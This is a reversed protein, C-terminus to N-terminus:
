GGWLFIYEIRFYILLRINTRFFLEETTIKRCISNHTHQNEDQIDNMQFSTAPLKATSNHPMIQTNQGTTCTLFTQLCAVAHFYSSLLSIILAIASTRIPYVARRCLPLAFLHSCIIMSKLIYKKGSQTAILLIPFLFFTLTFWACSYRFLKNTAYCFCVCLM